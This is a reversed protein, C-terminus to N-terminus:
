TDRVNELDRRKFNNKIIEIKMNHRILEMKRAAENQCESLLKKHYEDEQKLQIDCGVMM